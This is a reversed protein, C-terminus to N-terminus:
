PILFNYSFYHKFSFYLLFYLKVKCVLCTINTKEITGIKDATKCVTSVTAPFNEQLDWVFNKIVSQLSNEKIKDISLHTLNKIQIYHHLEEETIDKM